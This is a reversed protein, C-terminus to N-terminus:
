RITPDDEREFGAFRAFDARRASSTQHVVLLRYVIAFM